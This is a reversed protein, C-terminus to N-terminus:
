HARFDKMYQFTDTGDRGQLYFISKKSRDFYQLSHITELSIKEEEECRSFCDTDKIQFWITTFHSLASSLLIRQDTTTKLYQVFVVTRELQIFARKEPKKSSKQGENPLKPVCVWFTKPQISTDTLLQWFKPSISMKWDLMSSFLFSLVSVM